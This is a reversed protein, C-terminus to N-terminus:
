RTKMRSILDRIDLDRHKLQKLITAAEIDINEQPLPQIRGDLGRSKKPRTQEWTIALNAQKRKLILQPQIWKLFNLATSSNLQLNKKYKGSSTKARNVNGGFRQHLEDIAICWPENQVLQVRLHLVRKGNTYIGISGEGDFFGAIYRKDIM